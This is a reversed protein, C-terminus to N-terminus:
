HKGSWFFHGCVLGVLFPLLPGYESTQVVWVVRSLTPQGTFLAWGEYGLLIAIAVVWALEAM